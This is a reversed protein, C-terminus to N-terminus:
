MPMLTKNMNKVIVTSLVGNEIISLEVTDLSSDNKSTVNIMGKPLAKCLQMLADFNLFKIDKLSNIKKLLM